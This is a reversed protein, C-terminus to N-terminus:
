EKKMRVYRTWVKEVIFGQEGFTERDELFCVAILPWEGDWQGAVSEVLLKLTGADKAEVYYNNIVYENKKQEVPMFGVVRGDSLAIFWEYNESTRFPYNYNQKLVEPDMVLRAVLCYLQEDTGHLQVVQIM